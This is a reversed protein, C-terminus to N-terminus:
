LDTHILLDNHEMRYRANLMPRWQSCIWFILFFQQWHSYDITNTHITLITHITNTNEIFLIPNLNFRYISFAGGALLGITGNKLDNSTCMGRKPTPLIRSSSKKMRITGLHVMIKTFLAPLIVRGLNGLWGSHIFLLRIIKSQELAGCFIISMNWPWPVSGCPQIINHFIDKLMSIALIM